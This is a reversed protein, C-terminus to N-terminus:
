AALPVNQSAWGWCTCLYYFTNTYLIHIMNLRNNFTTYPYNM